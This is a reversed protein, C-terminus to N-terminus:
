ATDKHSFCTHVSFRQEMIGFHSKFRLFFVDLLVPRIKHFFVFPFGPSDAPPFPNKLGPPEDPGLGFVSFTGGRGSSGGDLGLGRNPAAPIRREHRAGGKKIRRWVFFFYRPALSIKEGFFKPLHLM